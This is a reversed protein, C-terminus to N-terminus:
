SVGGAGPASFASTERETEKEDAPVKMRRIRALIWYKAREFFTM